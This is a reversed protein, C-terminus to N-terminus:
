RCTPGIDHKTDAKTGAELLSGFGRVKFRNLTDESKSYGSGFGFVYAGSLCTLLMVRASTRTIDRKAVDLALLMVEMVEKAEPDEKAQPVLHPKATKPRIDQGEVTIVLLLAHTLTTDDM